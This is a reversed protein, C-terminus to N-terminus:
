DRLEQLRDLDAGGFARRLGGTLVGIVIVAFLPTPVGAVWFKVRVTFGTAGTMVLALPVVNATPAAPVNETVVVPLGFAARDAVLLGARGAPTVNLSLPLPM